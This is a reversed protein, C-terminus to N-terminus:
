PLLGSEVTFPIVTPSLNTFNRSFRLNSFLCSILNNSLWMYLYILRILKFFILSSSHVGGLHGRCSSENYLVSTLFNQFKPIDGLKSKEVLVALQKMWLQRVTNKQFKYRFHHSIKFTNFSLNESNWLVGNKSFLSWPRLFSRPIKLSINYLM